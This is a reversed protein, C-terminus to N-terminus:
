QPRSKLGRRSGHPDLCIVGRTLGLPAICVEGYPHTVGSPTPSPVRPGTVWPKRWPSLMHCCTPFDPPARLENVAAMPGSEAPRPLTEERRPSAPSPKFNLATKPLMNAGGSSPPASKSRAPGPRWAHKPTALVPRAPFRLSETPGVLRQTFAFLDVSPYLAHSRLRNRVYVDRALSDEHPHVEVDRKRGTFDVIIPPDAHRDRADPFDDVVPALQDQDAVESAGLALSELNLKGEAGDGITEALQEPLLDLESRGGDDTRLGLLHDGL